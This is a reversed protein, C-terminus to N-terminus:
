FVEEVLEGYYATITKLKKNLFNQEIEVKGSPAALSLLQEIDANRPMFYAINETISKTAEFLRFGDLTIMTRIDFVEASTYNPGGWPPSLFVVDANLRPILRTYDGCIFEIRDAVGYVTANHHALAVKVPDIDIAIVRECTFAFQIANGGVGCFADVILDCRCREAIHKAIREPTVSFWGEKDMKIGKDFRSFLRYRQAWYKAIEPDQRPDTIVNVDDTTDQNLFVKRHDNSRICANNHNDVADVQRDMMNNGVDSNSDSKGGSDIHSDCLEPKLDTKGSLNVNSDSNGSLDANTNDKGSSDPSSDIQGSLDVCCGTDTDQDHKFGRQDESEEQSKEQAHLLSPKEGERTFCHIEDDEDDEDDEDEFRLHIGKPKPVKLCSEFKRHDNSRICANNHNDVADVQRDMMNNGVDSNSDSKGGSDIHSDCLEPKLDTKGSLNVNSDSNGSLDANTNDKGSSDPSSDIQGSLDVCCGTDTDQDHKFGRQDESEEQSKEQAHLLSPKEGERTFCHIEDDEDDEDDEDEFRLHIGKPKPVKSM